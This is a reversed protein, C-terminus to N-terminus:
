ALEVDVGEAVNGICRDYVQRVGAELSRVRRWGLEALQAVNLRKRPTGDPKSAAFRLEGEHGTILARKQEM